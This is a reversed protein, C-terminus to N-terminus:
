ALLNLGLRLCKDQLGRSSEGHLLARVVQHYMSGYGANKGNSVSRNGWTSQHKSEKGEWAQMRMLEWDGDVETLSLAVGHQVFQAITFM